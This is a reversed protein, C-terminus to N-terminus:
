SSGGSVDVVSFTKFQDVGAAAALVWVRVNRYLAGNGAESM